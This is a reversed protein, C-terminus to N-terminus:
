RCTPRASSTPSPRVGRADGYSTKEEKACGAFFAAAALALALNRTASNM